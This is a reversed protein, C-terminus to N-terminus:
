EKEKCVCLYLCLSMFLLLSIPSVKSEVEKVSFPSPIYVEETDMDIPDENQNDADSEVKIIDISLQLNSVIRNSSAKHSWYM